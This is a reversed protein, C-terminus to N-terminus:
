EERRPVMLSLLYRDSSRKVALIYLYEIVCMVFIMAASIMMM